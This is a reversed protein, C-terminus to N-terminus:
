KFALPLPFSAVVRLRGDKGSRKRVAREMRKMKVEEEKLDVWWTVVVFHGKREKGRLGRRKRLIGAM